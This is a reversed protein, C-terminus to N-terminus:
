VTLKGKETACLISLMRHICMETHVDTLWKTKLGIEGDTLPEGEANDLNHDKAM